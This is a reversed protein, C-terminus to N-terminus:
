QIQNLVWEMERAISGDIEVQMDEPLVNWTYTEIELHNTFPEDKWKKLVRIIEDQTSELLGYNSLFVPVHFHTRVEELAPRAILLKNLDRYRIILEGARGVAQHLYTPEDFDALAYYIDGDGSLNGKLAASIQM